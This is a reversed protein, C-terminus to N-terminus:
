LTPSVSNPKQIDCFFDLINLTRKTATNLYQQETKLTTFIRAQTNYLYM